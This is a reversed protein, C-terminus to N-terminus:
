QNQLNIRQYGGQKSGFSSMETVKGSSRIDNSDNLYKEKYYNFAMYIAFCLLCIVIFSILIKTFSSM